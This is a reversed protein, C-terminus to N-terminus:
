ETLLTLVGRAVLAIGIFSTAVVVVRSSRPLGAALLRFPERDRGVDATDVVSEGHM